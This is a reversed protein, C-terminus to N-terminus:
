REEFTYDKMELVSSNLLRYRVPSRSGFILEVLKSGNSNDFVRAKIHLISSHYEIDFSQNKGVIKIKGSRYEFLESNSPSIKGAEYSAGQELVAAVSGNFLRSRSDPELQVLKHVKIRQLLVKSGDCFAKRSGSLILTNIEREGSQGLRAAICRGAEYSPVNVVTASEAAPEIIVLATEQSDGGSIVTLSPAAFDGALHWFVIMGGVGLLGSIFGIRNRAAVLLLLAAYFILLGYFTPMAAGTSASIDLSIGAIFDILRITSETLWATLPLLFTFVSLFIKLSVLNFLLLVCPILLFNAAISFPFYIGQYYLCIGSSALWAVVCGLLALLFKRRWKGGWYRMKGLYRAPIWASLEGSLRGWEHNSRGAIILFGVVVFSFQFGMDKIYFPNKLLLVTATLFVINLAPIYLLAARCVCWITIMLWARLAPPHMGTSLVYLFILAPVLLHRRRFPVWRFFWFLVLALIGVHLGSVTFIHITGSKVYNIKAEYDLGQRCGFLLTALLNRYKENKIGNTVNQLLINRLALIPRYLGAERSKVGYFERCYFIRSINRSKLYAAFHESGPNVLMQTKGVKVPKSDDAPIINEQFLFHNGVGRFTGKLGIIDGYNLLPADRPLRVATLGYTEHWKDDGNRKIQLVKVTLLAPNPLWPVAKGCCSTDIVKGLIKAGCDRDGMLSIYSGAAIRQNINVSALGICVTLFLVAFQKRPLLFAGGTILPSVCLLIKWWTLSPYLVQPLIANIIGILILLAPIRAAIRGSRLENFANKSFGAISNYIKM